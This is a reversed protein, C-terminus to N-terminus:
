CKWGFLWSHEVLIPFTGKNLTSERAVLRIILVVQSLERLGRLEPLRDCLENDCLEKKSLIM